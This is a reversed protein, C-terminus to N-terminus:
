QGYAASYEAPNAAKGNLRVAFHLHPPLAEEMLPSATVEGLKDGTAVRSGVQLDAAPKLGYYVLQLNEGCSLVVGSGWAADDPLAAVEGDLVALVAAGEQAPWDIGEHFRYDDFSADYGYGFARLVTGDFDALPVGMTLLDAEAQLAADGVWPEPAGDIVESDTEPEPIEAVDVAAKAQGTYSGETPATNKQENQPSLPVAQAAAPTVDAVRSGQWAQQLVANVGGEDARSGWVGVAAVAAILLCLAAWRGALARGRVDRLRYRLRRVWNNLGSIFRRM